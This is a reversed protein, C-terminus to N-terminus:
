SEEGYPTTGDSGSAESGPRSEETTSEDAGTPEETGPGASLLRTLFPYQLVLSVIALVITIWVTTEPGFMVLPNLVMNSPSTEFLTSQFWVPIAFAMPLCVIVLLIISAIIEATYTLVKKLTSDIARRAQTM